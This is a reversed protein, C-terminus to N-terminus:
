EHRTGGGFAEPHLLRAMEELFQVYRPGPRLAYDSVIVHVAHERVATVSRLRDWQHVMVAPAPTGPKMRSTVDLIVDPNIGVVGEASLEPYAVTEGAIANEGGAAELVEGYFTHRGAVYLGALQGSTVDRDPCVLVRPKPRGEVARRIAQERARLNALLATAQPAVGCAAGILRISEHIDAITEHPTTLTPLGLKELERKADRHASVLIVLDPRLAVIEEYSPDVFGGVKAIAATEPPYDCYRTVGVVRNGLGLAFLVETTNPALSVIRRPVASVHPSPPSCGLWALLVCGLLGSLISRHM